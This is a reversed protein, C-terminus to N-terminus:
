RHYYYVIFTKCTRHRIFIVIIVAFLIVILTALVGMVVGIYENSLRAKSKLTALTTLDKESAKTSRTSSVLM